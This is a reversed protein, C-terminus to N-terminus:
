RKASGKPLATKLAKLVKESAEQISLLFLEFHRVDGLIERFREDTMFFARLMLRPLDPEVECARNLLARLEDESTPAEGQILHQTGTKMLELTVGSQFASLSQLSSLLYPHDATSLKSVEAHDYCFRTDIVQYGTFKVGVTHAVGLFTIDPKLQRVNAIMNASPNEVIMKRWLQAFRGLDGGVGEIAVKLSKLSDLRFEAEKIVLLHNHGEEPSLHAMPRTAVNQAFWEAQEIKRDLGKLDFGRSEGFAESIFGFPQRGKHVDDGELPLPTLGIEEAIRAYSRFVNRRFPSALLFPSIELGVTRAGQAYARQM